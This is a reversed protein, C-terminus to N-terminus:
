RGRGDLPALLRDVDTLRFRLFRREAAGHSHFLVQEVFRTQDLHLNVIDLDGALQARGFVDPSPANRYADVPFRSPLGYYALVRPPSDLMTAVGLSRYPEPVENSHVWDGNRAGNVHVSELRGDADYNASAILFEPPARFIRAVSVAALEQGEGPLAPLIEPTEHELENAYAVTFRQPHPGRYGDAYYYTSRAYITGFDGHLLEQAKTRSRLRRNEDLDLSDYRTRPERLGAYHDVSYGVQYHFPWYLPVDQAQERTLPAAFTVTLSTPDIQITRFYAPAPEGRNHHLRGGWRTWALALGVVAGAVLVARRRGGRQAASAVWLTAALAGVTTAAFGTSFLM